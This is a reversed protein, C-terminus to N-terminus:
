AHIYTGHLLTTRVKALQMTRVEYDVYEKKARVKVKHPGFTVTCGVDEPYYYESKRQLYM